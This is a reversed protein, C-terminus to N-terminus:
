SWSLAVRITHGVSALLKLRLGPEPGSRYRSTGPHWVMGITEVGSPLDLVVRPDAADRRGGDLEIFLRTAGVTGLRVVPIGEPSLITIPPVMVTNAGAQQVLILVGEPNVTIIFDNSLAQGLANQVFV